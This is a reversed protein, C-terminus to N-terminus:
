FCSLYPSQQNFIIILLITSILNPCHDPKRFHCSRTRSLWRITWSFWSKSALTKVQSSWHSWSFRCHMRYTSAILHTLFIVNIISDLNAQSVRQLL